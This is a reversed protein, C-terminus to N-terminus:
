PTWTEALPTLQLEHTAARAGQNALFEVAAAIQHPDALAAPEVGPRIDGTLPQIGADVILLTVQIGHPRLELAAANTIARVGFSGAAWLGRGPMARRASGGTVQILTAARGQAVAYRGSASLFSFAARSPAVAWSDFADLDATIVPGGGFPGGRGGGYASAANVALDIGGHASAAEELAAHVSAPDTVDAELALAGAEGVGDLTTKSRAVGAVAWGEAVLREIVARGLNRAGFVIASRKSDQRESM